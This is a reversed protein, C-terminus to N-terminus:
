QIADECLVHSMEVMLSMKLFMSTM